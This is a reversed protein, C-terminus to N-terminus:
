SEHLMENYLKQYKESMTKAKFYKNVNTLSIERRSVFDQSVLQLQRSLQNVNKINFFNGKCNFYLERHSPIDSLVTPLGCAMAELVTNPLGEALSASIFCDSIQLYEVVNEINGLFKVSNHFMKELNKKEFGNGVILLISNNTTNYLKFGNIVTTVDKRPILSGVTIFVKKEKDINLKKKLLEKGYDELPKYKVTEVGNQVCELDIGNNIKFENKITESCAVFQLPNKRVLNYHNLAFFNGKIKGFKLVYDYFPYNHLTSVKKISSLGNSVLKDARLGHTHIISPKLGKIIKKFKARNFLAGEIRSNNLSIVKTSLEVKFYNIMSEEEEPSLTVITPIFINRDLYKIINGLQIVPGSRKLTSTVYIIENMNKQKKM